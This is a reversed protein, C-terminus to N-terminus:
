LAIVAPFFFVLQLVQATRDSMTSQVVKMENEKLLGSM